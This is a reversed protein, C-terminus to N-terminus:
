QTVEILAGNEIRVQYPAGFMGSIGPRRVTYTGDPPLTGGGQDLLTQRLSSVVIKNTVVQPPRNPTVPAPTTTASRPEAAPAPPGPLEGLLWNQGYKRGMEQGAMSASARGSEALIAAMEQQRKPNKERDLKAQAAKVVDVNEQQIQEKESSTFFTKDQLLYRQQVARTTHQLDAQQMTRGPDTVLGMLLNIGEIREMPTQKELVEPPTNKLYMAAADERTFGGAKQTGAKLEKVWNGFREFDAGTITDVSETGQKESQLLTLGINWDATTFGMETVSQKAVELPINKKHIRARFEAAAREKNLGLQAIELQTRHLDDAFKASRQQIALQQQRIGQEARGQEALRQEQLRQNELVGQQYTGAQQQTARAIDVQQGALGLQAQRYGQQGKAEELAVEQGALQVAGMLKQQELARTQELEQGRGQLAQQRQLAEFRLADRISQSLNHFGAGIADAM